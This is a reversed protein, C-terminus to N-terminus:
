LELAESPATEINSEPKHDKFSPHNQRRFLDGFGEESKEADPVIAMDTSPSIDNLSDAIHEEDGHTDVDPLPGVAPAIGAVSEGSENHAIMMVVPISLFMVLAVGIFIFITRVMSLGKVNFTWRAKSAM